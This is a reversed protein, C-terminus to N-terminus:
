AAQRSKGVMEEPEKKSVRDNFSYDVSSVIQKESNNTTTLIENFTPYMLNLVDMIKTNTLADIDGIVVFKTNKLVEILIAKERELKQISLEIKENDNSDIMLHDYKNFESIENQELYDMYKHFSVVLKRQQKAKEIESNYYLISEKTVSGNFAYIINGSLIENNSNKSVLYRLLQELREGYLDSRKDLVDQKLIKANYQEFLFIYELDFKEKLSNYKERTVLNNEYKATLENLFVDYNEKLKSFETSIENKEIIIKAKYKELTRLLKMIKDRLLIYQQYDM